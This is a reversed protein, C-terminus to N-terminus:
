IRDLLTGTLQWLRIEDLYARYKAQILSYKVRSLNLQSERFQTSSVQGLNFYERTQEFNMEASALSTQKLELVQISKVYSGYASEVDRAMQRRAELADLESNKQLIKASQISKSKRGDFLNWSLTLGSTLSLDANDLALDFDSNTQQLGYSGTLNVTPMLSGISNKYSLETQDESNLSLLYTTNGTLSLEAMDKLRYEGFKREVNEPIYTEDLAWGLLLNLLQRAEAFSYQAELVSTSDNDFDVRAGLAQLSSSMGRANKDLAQELRDRSVNMQDKLINLNDYTMLLSFYGQSAQLLTSEVVLEERLETASAQTKLLRYSNIGQLGKFVTYSANLGSSNRTSTSTVAGGATQLTADTYNTSANLDVRPLLGANARSANNKSVQTNNGAQQIGINKELAVQMAQEFTLHNEAMLLLPLSLAFAIIKKM